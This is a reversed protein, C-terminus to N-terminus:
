PRTAIQDLGILNAANVRGFRFRPLDRAGTKIDDVVRSLQDKGSIGLAVKLEEFYKSSQGRAFLEFPLGRHGSFLLTDPYWNGYANLKDNPHLADRLFLLFDAQSIDEFNIDTRKARDRLMDAMLSVRNLKLRQNRYDLSSVHCCFSTFGLMNRDPVDPSTPSFYYARETLLNVGDFRRNKLLVAVAYLFLENLMFRYNDANWDHWTSRGPPWFRYPLLREFFQHIAEYMELNPRYRTIASLLDVVENRYPLFTDISEIVKDDFEGDDVCEIRFNELNEVFTNFYDRVAGPASAKDQRLAETALRYRSSTGLSIKDDVFIHAPPKGRDPRKYLPKDFIWRLLREFSESRLSSDAMDIYIRSKLFTPVYPTGKEDKETIVAVFRQQQGAPDIQEYLERSIIQTETGVGDKRGDAKEAYNRDCVVVVKGVSPDTVMKEMFAYKDAGERLDWKDLIVEVGSEELETSLELVWAEHEPSSWSYSIFTKPSSLGEETM